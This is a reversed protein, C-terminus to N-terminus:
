EGIHRGFYNYKSKETIEQKNKVPILTFDWHYDQGANLKYPKYPQAGWSNDGALGMMRYDVCVEVFDRPSIDNIHTQKPMQNRANAVSHPENPIFNHWQYDRSSEEGDFDEISNRMANFEMRDKNAMILLGKGDVDTLNFWRVDTKHGNEQPRVYPYYQAEASSRYLGVLTGSKRDCYNEEPGRGFYELQNMGAPIRFRMGIRPIDTTQTSALLQCSINVIGSPYITYNVKYQTGAEQLNYILNLTAYHPTEGTIASLIKFNKGAQKWVQLRNPMQSGYDNDTPGRWFNPQIGFHDTIYETGAVKYSNVMGSVKDFIFAVKSGIIQIKDSTNEIKFKGTGEKYEKLIPDIPLRFQETAVVHGAPIGQVSEKLTAYFNVFYETNEKPTLNEVPIMVETSKGPKLAVKLVGSKLLKTNAFLKYTINYKDTNTFDYRNDIRVVGNKLDVPVFWIYQYAKKVETMAPHPTRDPNVIGNCLFNGDSPTNKGFDGGYAWFKRGNEDIQAIGQDIWDWIFGGQLNPYKYIMEWQDMLNGTSNGMAHAYESAIYPRDTLSSGWNGFTSAGPYQPCYIDTNWELLAREYQIPRMSEKKKLWNYTMYFNYGNGAENGLSWFIISPYNKNREYMNQTRELHTQLFAPNNGLTGGKKLNYYMGHSEINAEDCVYIGYEDCLEYFRRQQPYHCCRVANINNQKMLTFDKRMDTESVIHGTNENHEHINVGKILIPRGNVLFQNGKMELRRFGVRFPVYETTKDNESLSIMLQYLHPTEATWPAVKPIIASFAVEQSGQSTVKQQGSAVIEGEATSLQFNISAASEHSNRNRLIVNLGFVGNTYSSDLEQRITFDQIHLQPQSFLYVEREIGSIRWFDQCELYSGTSWRHVELALLNKGAQLYPTINYEAPNKSDENYGVKKGNVFVYCGSKVGGLHLFIERGQWHDPITFFKRYAGVPNDAPLTFPQPNKPCFEYGHNTYIATGYGNLEWNAPVDIDKWANDNFDSQYFNTPHESLTPVWNFKWKGNLTRFFESSSFVKKQASEMSGYTMFSTRPYEKNVSPVAEDQWEPKTQAFTQSCLFFGLIYCLRRKM